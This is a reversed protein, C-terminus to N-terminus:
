VTLDWKNYGMEMLRLLVELLYEEQEPTMKANDINHTVEPQLNKEKIVQDMVSRITKVFEEFTQKKHLASKVNFYIDKPSILRKPTNPDKTEALYREWRIMGVSNM